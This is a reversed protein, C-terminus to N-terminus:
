GAGAFGRQTQSVGGGSQFTARRSRARRAIEEQAAADGRFAAGLQTDVNVGSAAEGPLQEFVERQQVLTGFGQQLEAPTSGSILEAQGQNLQGFGSTRAQAAAQAAGFTRQIIPMAKDPDIFYAALHGSDIGYLSQLEERTTPDVDFAVTQYDQLRQQYEAPSVDNVILRAFDDPQDYFGTPLGFQRALESYTKELRIYSGEDIAQGKQGLQKMAPFRTQYEPTDRLELMIQEIPEGQQWKGWAWTSLTGLGYQNLFGDIISKASEVPTGGPPPPAAPPPQTGQVPQTWAM